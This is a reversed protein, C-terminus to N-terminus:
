KSSSRKSMEANWLRQYLGNAAMLEAHTGKEVIRGGELVLIVDANRASSIRQDVIFTTKGRQVAQLGRRLKGEEKSDLGATPRDLLVIGPKTLLARAAELHRRRAETLRRDSREVRPDLGEPFQSRDDVFDADVRRLADLIDADTTGESVGYLLNERLTGDMWIGKDHLMAIQRRLPSLRLARADKGDFAVGGMDPDHLRLILDLMASKGVGAEGVIAVRQGPQVSFSVDELAPTNEDYSFSVGKFEVRGKLPGPDVADPAENVAPKQKLYDLVQRAAGTTERYRTYLNLFGALAQQLFGAYGVMATTQGVSPAGTYIYSFLGILLVTLYFAFRYMQGMAGNYGAALRERKLVIGLYHEARKGYREGEKNEASFGRVDRINALSEEAASIVEVRANMQAENLKEAKNGYILSILGMLPVVATVILTVQWSTIAMMVGAVAAMAAYYPLLVPIDINKAALQDVDESLRAAVKSPKEKAFFGFPLTLVHRFVRLRFDRLVQGNLRGKLWAYATNMVLNAVAIGVLAGGLVWGMGANKALATDVLSGAIYSTGVGIAAQVINIGRLVHVHKKHRQVFPAVEPNGRFMDRILMGFGAVARVLGATEGIIYRIHSFGQLSYAAFHGFRESVRKHFQLPRAAAKTIYVPPRGVPATLFIRRFGGKQFFTYPPKLVRPRGAETEGGRSLAIRFALLAFGAAGVGLVASLGFMGWAAYAAWGTFGLLTQASHYAGVALGAHTVGALFQGGATTPSFAESDGGPLDSAKPGPKSPEPVAATERAFGARPAYPELRGNPDGVGHGLPRVDAAEAEFHASGAGRRGLIRDMVAQGLHRAGGVSMRSIEAAPPALDRRASLLKNLSPAGPDAAQAPGRSRVADAAGSLPAHFGATGPESQIPTPAAAPLPLAMAATEPSTWLSPRVSPTLRLAGQLSLARPSVSLSGQAGGAAIRAVGAAAQAGPVANIQTGVNVAVAGALAQYCGTGPAVMVLTAALASAIGKRLLTHTHRLM